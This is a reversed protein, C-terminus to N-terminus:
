KARADVVKKLAYAQRLLIFMEKAEDVNQWQHHHYDGTEKDFRVLHYSDILKDPHNEEWMMGYAAIQLLYDGYVAKSTKWDLLVLQRRNNSGIRAVCDITGGYQHEECSLREETCVVTLKWQHAWEIFGQFSQHARKAVDLPYKYNTALQKPTQKALRLREGKKAHIYMEVLDHALTGADAAKGSVSRFNGLELPKTNLFEHIHAKLDNVRLGQPRARCTKQLLDVADQLQEFALNWSWYMLPGPDKFQGLITTVSPVRKGDLTKYPVRTKAM